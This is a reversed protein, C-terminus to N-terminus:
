EPRLFHCYPEKGTRQYYRQHYDEAPYFVKVPEITTSFPKSSKAQRRAKVAEATKQQEHNLTYIVSRYQTGVDPGQRNVQTADHM